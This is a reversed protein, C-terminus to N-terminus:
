FGVMQFELQRDVSIVAPRDVHAVERMGTIIALLKQDIWIRMVCFNETTLMDTIEGNNEEALEQLGTVFRDLQKNEMRWVEVDVRERDSGKLGQIKLSEGLKDEPPIEEIKDIADIFTPKDKDLRLKFKQRFKALHAESAFVVLYGNESTVSSLTQVGARKLEARFSDDSVSQALRIRFILSPDFYRGYAQKDSNYRQELTDM